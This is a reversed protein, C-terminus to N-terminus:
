TFDCYYAYGEKWANNFLKGKKILKRVEIPLGECKRYHNLKIKKYLNKCWWCEELGSKEDIRVWNLPNTGEKRIKGFLDEVSMIYIAYMKNIGNM